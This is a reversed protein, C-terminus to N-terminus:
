PKSILIGATHVATITRPQKAQLYSNKYPLQGAAYEADFSDQPITTYTKYSLQCAAYEAERSDQPITTYTKYPLQGAAYEM